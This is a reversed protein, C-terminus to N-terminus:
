YGGWAVDNVYANTATIECKLYISTSSLSLNQITDLSTIQTWTSGNNSIFWSITGSGANQTATIAMYQLVESATVANWVVVAKNGIQYYITINMYDLYANEGGDGASIKAALSIGFNSSNIDSYTWTTGWLDSNSGYTKTTGSAPMWNSVTDAKNDGKLNGDAGILRVQYDEVHANTTNQFAVKRATVAIGTIIANSPINFGFTKAEIRNTYIVGTSPGVCVATGSTNSLIETLSSWGYTGIDTRTTATTGYTPGVTTLSPVYKLQGGAVSYNTSSGTNIASTDAFLDSWADIDNKLLSQQLKLRLINLFNRKSMDGLVNFADNVTAAGTLGMATATSDSLLNAKNLATGATTAGDENKIYEYRILAGTADYIGYKIAGNPAVNVPIRDTM